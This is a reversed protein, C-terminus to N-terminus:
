NESITKQEGLADLWKKPLKLGRYGKSKLFENVKDRYMKVGEVDGERLMKAMTMRADSELARETQRFATAKEAFDEWTGGSKLHEKLLEKMEATAIKKAIVDEPDDDKIEINKFLYKVVEDKPIMKAAGPMLGGGESSLALVSNEFRNDFVPPTLSKANGDSDIEYMEGFILMQKTEGPPPLKCRIDRGTPLRIYGPPPGKDEANEETNTPAAAAVKPANTVATQRSITPKVEKALTSPKKPGGDQPVVEVSRGGMLWWLGGGVLLAVVACLVLPMARVGPVGGSAKTPKRGSPRNKQGARGGEKVSMVSVSRARMQAFCDARSTAEVVETVSAGNAGRYTVTFM